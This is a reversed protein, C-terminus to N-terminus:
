EMLRRLIKGVNSKPLSERFAIHKPVKYSTLYKKCHEKMEEETLSPDKKVIFAKVAETSKEDTVGKVGCELVKPHMAIVEEVENPYVNFGSVLIMEKKRDVIRFFGEEDMVGVDGTKLWEGEMIKATEEPKNWYGAMVQPGKIWIEGREEVGLANGNDDAIKFETSPLPLGITGLKIRGDVPNVSAVPSTETLGYGEAIPTGTVKQWREAVAKQVAMGGGVAVKFESFDVSAFDDQNLLGNFLTNLGTMVSFKEKKLEKIFAKMDRPNTILVNKAGFKMMTLLNATLAFIHYLPLPAIVIEQSDKLMPKFWAYSQEVNALINRHTLMAGKAVGTTGGTYQLIFVDTNKLSPKKYSLSKGETLVNKLKYAQPLNYSPVMKKINKVVFNVISGKLGGLIDGINTIIVTEISTNKLVEELKSAFNSLIIIGKAGSDKFQHEMERETYLPNTNVIILGAKLAGFFVIPYQLLNPMQIAIRDGPKLNTKNQIWAAFATALQDAEAFSLTKGMNTYAPLDRYQNICEEYFELVSSYKDPNIESNVEKPYQKLWPYNAM